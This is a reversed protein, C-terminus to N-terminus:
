NKSRGRLLSRLSAAEANLRDGDPRQILGCLRIVSTILAMNQNELRKIRTKLMDIETPTM